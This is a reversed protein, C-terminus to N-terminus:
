EKGAIGVNVGNQRLLTRWGGAKSSVEEGYPDNFGAHFLADVKFKNIDPADIDKAWNGRDAKLMGLTNDERKMSEVIDLHEPLVYGEEVCKARLELLVDAVDIDDRYTQCSVQCAGCLQCRYIIEALEDTLQSREQLLSTGIIMKGGGSYAHFNYRDVSPCLKAYRWSKVQLMPTWKCHSCRSCGLMDNKLEELSM